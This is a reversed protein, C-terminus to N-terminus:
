LNELEKNFTLELKSEWHLRRDLAWYLSLQVLGMWVIYKEAGLSEIFLEPMTGELLM